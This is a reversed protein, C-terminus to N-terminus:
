RGITFRKQVAFGDQLVRVRYDRLHDRLSARTIRTQFGNAAPAAATFAAPAEFYRPPNLVVSEELMPQALTPGVWVALLAGM